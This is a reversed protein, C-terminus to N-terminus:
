THRDMKGRPKDEDRLWQKVKIVVAAEMLQARPNGVQIRRALSTDEFHSKVINNGQRHGKMLVTLSADHRDRSALFRVVIGYGTNKEMGIERKETTRALTNETGKLDSM